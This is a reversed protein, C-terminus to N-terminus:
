ANGGETSQRPASGYRATVNAAPISGPMPDHESAPPIRGTVASHSTGLVSGLVATKATSPNLFVADDDLPIVSFRDPSFSNEWKLLESFTVFKVALGVKLVSALRVLTELNFNTGGPTEMASIRSQKMNAQKGLEVQTMDGRLVKIQAPILVDLKSRIYAARYDSDTLLKSM